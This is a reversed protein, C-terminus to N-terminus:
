MNGSAVPDAITTSMETGVDHYGVQIHHSVRQKRAIRLGLNLHKGSASKWTVAPRGSISTLYGGAAESDSRWGDILHLSRGLRMSMWSMAPTLPSRSVRCVVEDLFDLKRFSM